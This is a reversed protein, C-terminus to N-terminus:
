VRCQTTLAQQSPWEMEVSCSKCMMRETSRVGCSAVGLISGRFVCGRGRERLYTM